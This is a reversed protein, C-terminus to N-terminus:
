RQSRFTITAAASGADPTVFAHGRATFGVSVTIDVGSTTPGAQSILTECFGAIPRFAERLSIDSALATEGEFRRIRGGEPFHDEHLQVLAKTGDSLDYEIFYLAIRWKQKRM